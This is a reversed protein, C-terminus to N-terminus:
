RVTRAASITSRRRLCCTALGLAWWILGAPEPVARVARVGKEYGGDQFASVLDGSNFRLDGNWDGQDWTAASEQEYKGAQFVIVLDGSNFENDLNADGFWTKKLDKVWVALDDRNVANDANLDLAAENTGASIGANLMNVDALDLVGSKDFDGPIAITRNLFLEDVQQQSYEQLLQDSTSFLLGDIAGYPERTSIQFTQVQGIDAETINYQLALGYDDIYRGDAGSDIAFDALMWHFQGDWFDEETSNHLESDGASVVVKNNFIPVWGDVASDGTLENGDQDVGVFGIWDDSSNANFSPAVFISDENGYGTDTNSNYMSAHLFLYYTGPTTFQLEWTATNAHLGGGLQDFIGAGGSANTNAPLVDLGGKVVEQEDATMTITKIPNINDVLVFGVSPDDGGLESASEAEVWLFASGDPLVDAPSQVTIGCALSGMSLLTLATSVWRLRIDM